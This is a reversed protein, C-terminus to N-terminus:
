LIEIKGTVAESILSQKALKLKEIIEEQKKITLDFQSCKKDLFYSILKQEEISPINIITNRIDEKNLKPQAAAQAKNILQLNVFNSVFLWYAFDDEFSNNLKILFMNPALTAPMKLEPVKFAYGSYAGVNAILIEGGFLSSKKLYNYSEQSVYVGTQNELNKRLDTLRILRAYDVDDLYKVNKALDGFSGNATYDTLLKIYYRLYGNKWEKPIMGLWEVGSDKMEHAERKIIGYEGNEKEIVKVKGTVVESILSKKAEELQNILLEKKAIISDFEECKKDLFDAIKEELDEIPLSLFIDGITERNLNLQTGLKGLGAYCQGIYFIYYLFNNYKVNLNHFYIFGDHICTKIKTICPKGVSGAISIFLRNPELKVSLSAGLESLKQQTELLYKGSSTVDAIRTWSYNGDEAFYKPDDIPRPSAGRGITSLYKIKKVEWEKPIMGLWEVGSDKMEHPERYRYKM